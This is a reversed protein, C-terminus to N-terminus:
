ETTGVKLRLNKNEEDWFYLDFMGWKPEAKKFLNYITEYRQEIWLVYQPTPMGKKNYPQECQERLYIEDLQM